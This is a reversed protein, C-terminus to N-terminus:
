RITLAVPTLWMNNDLPGTTTRAAPREGSALQYLGVGLHYPGPPSDAPLKLFHQDVLTEEPAWFRTPWNGGLPQGDHQALRNGDGDLLHVFVTYDADPQGLARWRLTVTVVQGAKSIPPGVQVDLLAIAGGYTALSLAPSPRAVVDFVFASSTDLTPPGLASCLRGMVGTVWEDKVFQRHLLVHRIDLGQLLGRIEPTTLPRQADKGQGTLAADIAKVYARMGPLDRHIYGGVIPRQHATQYYMALNGIQRKSIPLNLVAGQESAWSALEAPPKTTGAPFPWLIMMEVLTLGILAFRSIRNLRLGALGQAALLALCFMTLENFREPTRGWRYFPVRTLLAYPQAISFTRGGLRLLPGLSLWLSVLGVSLWLGITKRRRVVALVSLLLTVYGLFATHELETPEPFLRRVAELRGIMGGWLPHYPPPVFLTLIDVSHDLTGPAALDTGQRWAQWIFPGYTPLVLLAALGFLLVGALLHRRNLQRWRTALSYVLVLVTAPAVFYATQVLAIYLSLALFLGGLLANRYNPEDLTRLLFMLYLPFWWAALQTLHGSLAHGMRNPFFAYVAGAYFAALPKQTMDLAFLYMTTGCLVFSALFFTNYVQTPSLLGQLPLALWDLLPTVGLLAHEGGWPHYLLDVQTPSHGLREWAYGSWWLSWTYQLSDRAEFGAVRQSLNAATPWTLVVTLALYGVAAWVWTPCRHEMEATM